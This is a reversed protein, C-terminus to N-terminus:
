HLWGNVSSTVRRRTAQQNCYSHCGSLVPSPGCSFTLRYNRRRRGSSRQARLDGFESAEGRENVWGSKEGRGEKDSDASPQPLPWNRLLAGTIEIEQRQM